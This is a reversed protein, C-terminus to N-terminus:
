IYRASNDHKRIYVATLRFDYGGSAGNKTPIDITFKYRAMDEVTFAPGELWYNKTTGAAYLDALLGTLVRTDDLTIRVSGSNASLQCEFNIQYTGPTLVCSFTFADDVASANQYSYHNYVQGTDITTTLANGNTVTSNRHFHVYAVDRAQYVQQMTDRLWYNFDVVGVINGDTFNTRNAGGIALRTTEGLVSYTADGLIWYTVDELDRLFFLTDCLAGGDFLTYEIATVLFKGSVGTQTESVQIVSGIGVDFIYVGNILHEGDTRLTISDVRYVPDKYRGLLYQALAEAFARGSDVEFPIHYTTSSKDYAAISTADEQTFLQPQYSTLAVGPIELNIVYYTKPGNNVFSAEIQGGLVALTIEVWDYYPSWGSGDAMVNLTYNTDRVPATISTASVAQGTSAEVFPVVVTNDTRAAVPSSRKTGGPVVAQPNPLRAIVGASSESRPRYQVTVSNYVRGVDQMGGQKIQDDSITLVPAVALQKFLWDRDKFTLTGDRATFFLGGESATIDNACTDGTTSDERWTDGAYKITDVGTDFSTLGTPQDTGGSLAAGSLHIVDSASTALAISNGAAGRANATIDLRGPIWFCNFDGTNSWAGGTKTSSFGGGTLTDAYWEIYNVASAARDTTMVIQYRTWARFTVASGLTVVVHGGGAALTSEDFTGTVSGFPEYTEDPLGASSAYIDVSATGAPAGVKRMYFVLTDTTITDSIFYFSVALADFGSAVDRLPIWSDGDTNPTGLARRYEATVTPHMITLSGYDVGIGPGSNIANALNGPTAEGDDTVSEILVEYAAGSLTDVFTYVTDGITVTDADSPMNYLDISGTAANGDFVMSCVKQLIAAPTQDIQLPIAVRGRQLKAMMDDCTITANQQGYQDPDPNIDRTYGYFLTTATGNDAQIRVPRNPLLKGYLPSAANNESYKRNSNKVTITALGTQATVTTPDTLYMGQSTTISIIDDTIDDGATDFSGDNDWDIAAKFTVTADAEANYIALLEDGTLAVDWLAVLGIGGSFNNAGASNSGIKIATPAGAWTGLTDQTAGEQAGNWFAKVEGTGVGADWTLAVQVRGTDSVGTKNISELTGGARYRWRFETNASSEFMYIENSADGYIHITIGSTSDTWIGAASVQFELLATGAAGNFAGALGAGFVDVYSSAGPTFGAVSDGDSDTYAQLTTNSHTGDYNNGSYDEATAGASENLWWAALLHAPQTALIQTKKTM